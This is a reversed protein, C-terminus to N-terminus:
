NDQAVTINGLLLLLQVIFLHLGERSELVVVRAVSIVSQVSTALQIQLQSLQIFM